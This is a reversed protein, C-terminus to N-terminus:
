WWAGTISRCNSDNRAKRERQVAATRVGRVAGPNVSARSLTRRAHDLVLRGHHGYQAAAGSRRSALHRAVGARGVVLDLHRPRGPRARDAALCAALASARCGAGRWAD